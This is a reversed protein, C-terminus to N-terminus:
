AVKSISTTFGNGTIAYRTDIVSISKVGTDVDFYVTAVSPGGAKCNPTMYIDAKCNHLNAICAFRVTPGPVENTSHPHTVGVKGLITSCAGNNIISTTDFDTNNVIVLNAAQAAFPAALVMSTIAALVTRKISM